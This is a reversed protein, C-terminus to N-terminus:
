IILVKGCNSLNLSSVFRDDNESGPCLLMTSSMVNSTGDKESDYKRSVGRVSTFNPNASLFVNIGVDGSDVTAESMTGIDNKHFERTHRVLTRSNRGGNGSYTVAEKEKLNKIPNIENVVMVAPDTTIYRWVAFPNMEIPMQKRAARSSHARISKVLETYIAGSIREMGCIRMYEPDIEDPHDDTELLEVTRILLGMFTTPEKMEELVDKTIPDIFMKFLLEIERLFRVSLGVAELLNLYVDKRNFEYVSYKKLERHFDKMGALIMAALNDDRSFILSEDGFALRYEDETMELRSDKPVRRYRIGLSNILKELGLHYALIFGIPIIKGLVKLGVIDIPAKTKDLGLMSEITPAPQIQKVGNIDKVIYLYSKADMLLLDGKSSQGVIISGEKELDSSYEAFVMSREKYDLYWKFGSLNFSRFRMSLLSYLRPAKVTNDFVDAPQLDIVTDNTDDLGQQMIENRIWEGYDTIKKSSRVATMKGYYSTLAVKDPAVKRIPVDRRAKRMTYKTNGSTWVGNEDVVPLKMWITSATGEVPQVKIRLNDYTGTADEQREKEVDLVCIGANQMSVIMSSIDKDMVKEIYQKDFVDTRSELMSKDFMTPNDKYKPPDDLTLEEKAITSMEELTKDTGPYKIEKYRSGLTEFRRYEAATIVGEDALADAAAKIGDEPTTVKSSESILSVYNDKNGEVVRSASMKDLAEMDKALADEIDDHLLFEGTKTDVVFEMDGYKEVLSLEKNKTVQEGDKNTEVVKVEEEPIGEDGTNTGSPIGVEKNETPKGTDATSKNTEATEIPKVVEENNAISEEINEDLDELIEVDGSRVLLFNMLYRIFLLQYKKPAFGKKPANPDAELEEETAKRYSNLTALNFTTWSGSDVIIFNIRGYHKPDIMSLMSDKRNEGLWKWFEFILFSGENNFQKLVSMNMQKSALRLLSLSPLHEPLHIIIFQNFDSKEALENMQKLITRQMNKWRHSFEYINKIYRYRREILSYNIVLPANIDRTGAEIDMVKRFRRNKSHYTRIWQLPQGPLLRPNGEINDKDLETIHYMPIVRKIGDFIFYDSSPGYELSGSDAIYHLISAKPLHLFELKSIRPKNLHAPRFLGRQRTFLQYTQLSM